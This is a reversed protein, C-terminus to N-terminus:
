GLLDDQKLLNEAIREVNIEFRGSAIALPRNSILASRM